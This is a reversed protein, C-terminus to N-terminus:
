FKERGEAAGMLMKAQNQQAISFSQALTVQTIETDNDKPIVLTYPVENLKKLIGVYQEFGPEM